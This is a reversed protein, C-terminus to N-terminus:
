YCIGKKKNIYRGVAWGVGYALACGGVILLAGFGGAVHELEDESIEPENGSAIAAQVLISDVEELTLEVGHAKFAEQFGEVSEIDKIEEGFEESELLEKIKVIREDM